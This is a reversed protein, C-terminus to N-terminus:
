PTMRVGNAYPWSHGMGRWYTMFAAAELMTLRESTMYVNMEEVVRSPLVHGPDFVVWPRDRQGRVNHVDWSDTVFNIREERSRVEVKYDVAMITRWSSIRPTVVILRHVSPDRVGGFALAEVVKPRFRMKEDDLLRRHYAADEEYSM